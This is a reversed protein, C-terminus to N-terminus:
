VLMRFGVDSYMNLGEIAFIFDRAETDTAVTWEESRCMPDPLEWHMCPRPTADTDGVACHGNACKYITGYTGDVNRQFHANEPPGTIANKARRFLKM